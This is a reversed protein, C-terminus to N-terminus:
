RLMARWIREPTAPPSIAGQVQRGAAAKWLFGTFEIGKKHLGQNQVFHPIVLVYRLLPPSVPLGNLKSVIASFPM